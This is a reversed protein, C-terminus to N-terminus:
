ERVRDGRDKGGGGEGEGGWGKDSIEGGRRPKTGWSSSNWSDVKVDITNLADFSNSTSPGKVKNISNAGVKTTSDMDAGRRTAGKKQWYFNPKQKDLRIGDIHRSKHQIDAKKGKHNKRKVETFGDSKTDKSIPAVHDRVIKPCRDSSHGFNKLTARDKPAANMSLELNIVEKTYSIGDEDPIAMIVEKKLDTDSSIKILAWAFNIRGWAEVCMSNTFADLM